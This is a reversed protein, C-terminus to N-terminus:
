TAKTFAGTSALFLKLKSHISGPTRVLIYVSNSKIENLLIIKPHMIKCMKVNIDYASTYTKM